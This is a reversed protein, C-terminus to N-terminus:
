RTPSQLGPSSAWEEIHLATDAQHARKLLDNKEAGAPLSAATDRADKAFAALRDQLSVTQRFRHRRIM